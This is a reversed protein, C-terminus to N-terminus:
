EKNRKRIDDLLKQNELRLEDSRAASKISTKILMENETKLNEIEKLRSRLESTYYEIMDNFREAPVTRTSKEKIPQPRHKPKPRGLKRNLLKDIM